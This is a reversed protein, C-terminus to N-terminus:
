NTEKVALADQLDYLGNQKRTLFQAGLIAGLAYIRRSDARHTIELREGDGAFVVTHEGVATGGRVSHIGIEKDTRKGTIGQRGYVLNESLDKGTAKAIIEAIKKATGSPADKKLRHHLEIIEHDFKKGQLAQSAQKVLNYMLNIGVSMNPSLLIPIEQSTKEIIGYEEEDKFGTTGIVMPTGKRKAIGLHELTASTTTFEVLVAGEQISEELNFSVEIKGIKEGLCPHNPAEIAGLLQIDDLEDIVEILERGMRGCAGCVIIKYM